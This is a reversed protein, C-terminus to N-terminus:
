ATVKQTSEVLGLGRLVALVPEHQNSPYLHLGTAGGELLARGLDIAHEIGVAAQAESSEAAQLARELDVPTAEGTLEIM